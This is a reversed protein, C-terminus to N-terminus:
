VKKLASAPHYKKQHNLRQHFNPQKQMWSWAQEIKNKKSSNAICEDLLKQDGFILSKDVEKCRGKEIRNIIQGYCLSKPSQLKRTMSDFKGYVSLIADSYEEYGDSQIM